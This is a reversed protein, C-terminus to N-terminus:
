QSSSGPYVLAFDGTSNLRVSASVPRTGGVSFSFAHERWHEGPADRVLLKLEGNLYHRYLEALGGSEAILVPSLEVRLDMPRLLRAREVADGDDGVIEVRLCELLAGPAAGAEGPEGCNGADASVRVSFESDWSEAEFTLATRGVQVVTRADAAVEAEVEMPRTTGAAAESPFSDGISSLAAVRYYRTTEADLTTDYYTTNTSGTDDILDAWEGDGTPSWEVRYGTTRVTTTSADPKWSLEVTDAGWVRASVGSPANPAPVYEVRVGRRRLESIHTTLSEENLPNGSLKVRDGRGLGENDPLPSADEIDNGFIHLLELSNLGSLPSVDTILNLGLHLERLSALESLPSVDSVRNSYIHLNELKTLGALPSLDEIENLYIHLLTLNELGALPSVDAIANRELHLEEMDTLGALPSIDVVENGYLHLLKLSTLGSLPSLDEIECNWMYLRELRELNAGSLPTLDSIPNEGLAIEELNVLGSIPSLDEIDNSFFHLEKLGTLGSLPSLDSIDQGEVHLETLNVLKALPGIDTLVYTEPDSYYKGVDLRELPTLGQIHVLDDDTLKNDSIDLERLGTLVELPSFDEIENNWLELTELNSLHALPSIDSVSGWNLVLETLGSLGALPSVDSVSSRTVHLSELNTLRALPHVGTISAGSVFLETLGTMRSLVALDEDDLNNSWLHLIELKPVDLLPEVDSIANGGLHLEYLSELGRLPEVSTIINEWLELVELKDLGAIPSLDWISNEYLSLKTVNTAHELGRISLIRTGTAAFSTLSAMDGVTIPQGESKGFEGELAARLNPDPIEVVTSTSVPESILVPVPSTGSGSDQATVARPSATLLITALGLAMAALVVYGARLRGRRKGGDVLGSPVTGNWM